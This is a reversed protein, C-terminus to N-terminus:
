FHSRHTIRSLLSPLGCVQLGFMKTHQLVIADIQRKATSSDKDSGLHLLRRGLAGQNLQNNAGGDSVEATDGARLDFLKTSGLAGHYLDDAKDARKEANPKRCCCCRCKDLLSVFSLHRRLRVLLLALALLAPIAILEIAAAGRQCVVSYASGDVGDDPKLVNCCEAGAVGARQAELLTAVATSIYRLSMTCSPPISACADTLADSPPVSSSNPSAGCLLSSLAVLEIAGYSSPAACTEFTNTFLWGADRLAIEHQEGTPKTMNCAPMPPLPTACDGFIKKVGDPPVEFGEFSSFLYCTDTEEVLTFGKCATEGKCGLACEDAGDSVTFDFMLVGGVETRGLYALCPDLPDGALM